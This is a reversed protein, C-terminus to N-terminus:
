EPVISVRMATVDGVKSEFHWLKERDDYSIRERNNERIRSAQALGEQLAQTAQDIAAAKIISVSNDESVGKNVTVSVRM